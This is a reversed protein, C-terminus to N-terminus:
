IRRAQRHMRLADTIQPGTVGQTTDVTVVYRQETETLPEHTALQHALVATDAESADRRERKLVRKRLIEEPTQCDLIIFPLGRQRALDRFIIRQARKLFAADVIVSFGSDLSMAALGALWAYTQRTSHASYLGRDLDSRTRADPPLAYLRKREIDSRIRIAPTHELLAQAVTTKGSGSLGHTIILRPQPVHTYSETLAIYGAYEQLVKGREGQELGVQGARITDVMARVMARYALYYRLVQLGAYDGTYELYANLFRRALRAQNRDDLDMVLFAAESMVDIWRLDDNFEICDFVLVENDLLAINRLHMDGHCERVFGNQKRRWLIDRCRGYETQAWVRLAQLREIETKRTLAVRVRDFNAMVLSHVQEPDGYRSRPGAVKVSGHFAALTAALQDIYRNRLAGRDAVRDLQAEQPFQVMKIAYEFAEGPGNLVPQEPTGTINVVEIYLRPALRQNLRLEQRCYFRRKELTSFDLFGLSVPKKIKYAFPGTLIVWSIHTEIVVIEQVAHDYLAPDQLRRILKSANAPV